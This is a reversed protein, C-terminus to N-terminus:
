LAQPLLVHRLTQARSMGLASAAETQGRPLALLAGRYIEAEYAAYNLGLGLIAAEFASLELLPALAFYLVYLQLLVPTGRFVEVSTAPAAGLLRGGFVRAVALMLGLGVALAFAVVSLWLTVGAGRLFLILQVADFARKKPTAAATTTPQPGEQRANWLH